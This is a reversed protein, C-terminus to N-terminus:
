VIAKKIYIQEPIDGFVFEIVSCLWMRKNLEKGEFKELVYYGGGVYPDCREVLKLIDSGNFEEESITVAVQNKYDSILDLMTDAGEVMQLDGKNGGAEIFEPLDIYWDNGEKIFDYQKMITIIM